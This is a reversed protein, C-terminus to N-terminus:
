DNIKPFSHNFFFITDRYIRENENMKIWLLFPPPLSELIENMEIFENM